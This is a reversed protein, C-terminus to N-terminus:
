KRAFLSGCYYSLRSLSIIHFMVCQLMFLDPNRNENCVGSDSYSFSRSVHTKGTSRVLMSLELQACKLLYISLM